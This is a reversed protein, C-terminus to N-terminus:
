SAKITLRDYRYRYLYEMEAAQEYTLNSAILVPQSLHFSEGWLSYTM